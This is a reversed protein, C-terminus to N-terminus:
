IFSFRERDCFTSWVNVSNWILLHVNVFILLILSGLAISPASKSCKNKSVITLVYLFLLRLRSSRSLLMNILILDLFFYKNIKSIQALIRLNWPGKYLFLCIWLHCTITMAFIYNVHNLVIYIFPCYVFLVKLNTIESILIREKIIKWSIGKQNNMSLSCLLSLRDLCYSILCNFLLCSRIDNWFIM